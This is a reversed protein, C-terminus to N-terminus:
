TCRAKFVILPELPGDFFDTFQVLLQEADFRLFGLWGLAGSSEGGGTM